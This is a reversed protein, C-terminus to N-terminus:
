MEIKILILLNSYFLKLRFPLFLLIFYKLFFKYFLIKRDKEIM